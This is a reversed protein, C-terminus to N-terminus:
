DSYDRCKTCRPQNRIEKTKSVYRLGFMDAPFIGSCHSCAFYVRTLVIRRLDLGTLDKELRHPDSPERKDHKAPPVMITWDPTQLGM